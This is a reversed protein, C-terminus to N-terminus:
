INAFASPVTSLGLSLPTAGVAMVSGQDSSLTRVCQGDAVNWVKATGDTSTTVVSTNDASFVAGRVAQAHGTLSQLCEGSAIDWIRATCDDSTTICAAGDPSLAVSKVINRHGYLAYANMDYVPRVDVHSDGGTTLVTLGDPCLTASGSAPMTNLCLGTCANWVKATGDIAATLVSLGDDSFVASCVIDTHGALTFKCEGAKTCWVKATHDASSTVVQNGSESFVASYLCNLHGKLALHCAGTSTNWIRALGDASATVIMDGDASFLASRLFGPHGPLNHLCRGTDVDWVKVSGDQSATLLLAGNSSFTSSFVVRKHGSLVLVCAGTDANWVKVLGDSLATVIYFSHCRVVTILSGSHIGAGKLTESGALIRGDMVLRLRGVANSRPLQVAATVANRLADVTDTQKMQLSALFDGNCALHASVEIQNASSSPMWTRLSALIADKSRRFQRNAVPRVKSIVEVALRLAAAAGVSSLNTIVNRQPCHRQSTVVATAM